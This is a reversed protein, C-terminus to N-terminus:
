VADGINKKLLSDAGNVGGIVAEIRLGVTYRYLFGAYVGGCPRTCNWNIDKFFPKGHGPKGGLDTLCNMEGVSIGAEILFLRDYYRNDYFYSQSFCPSTCYLLIILLLSKNMGTMQNTSSPVM